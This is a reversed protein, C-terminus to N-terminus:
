KFVGRKKKKLRNDNNRVLLEESTTCVQGVFFIVKGSVQGLTSRQFCRPFVGKSDYKLSLSSSRINKRILLDNIHPYQNIEDGSDAKRKTLVLFM